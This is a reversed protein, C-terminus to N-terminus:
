KAAMDLVISAAGTLLPVSATVSFKRFAATPIPWTPYADRVFAHRAKLANLRLNSDNLADTGLDRPGEETLIRELQDSIDRLVEDRYLTM